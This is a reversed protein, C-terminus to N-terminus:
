FNFNTSTNIMWNYNNCFDAALLFKERVGNYNVSAILERIRVKM